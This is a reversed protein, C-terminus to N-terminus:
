SQAPLEPSDNGSIWRCSNGSDVIFGSGVTRLAAGPEAQPYPSSRGFFKLFPDDMGAAPPWIPQVSLQEEPVSSINVVAPGNHQVLASFAGVFTTGVPPLANEAVPALAHGSVPPPTSLGATCGSSSVSLACTTFLVSIWQAVSM